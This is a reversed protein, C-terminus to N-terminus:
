TEVRHFAKLRVDVVGERRCVWVFRMGSGCVRVIIGLRRTGSICTTLIRHHLFCKPVLSSGQNQAEGLSEVGFDGWLFPGELWPDELVGALQQELSASSSVGVNPQLSPSVEETDLAELATAERAIM